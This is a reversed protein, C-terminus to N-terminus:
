SISTRCVVSAVGVVDGDCVACLQRTNCGHDVDDRLYNCIAGCNDCMRRGDKGEEEDDDDDDNDDEDQQRQQRQLSCRGCM